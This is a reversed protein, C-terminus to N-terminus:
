CWKFDVLLYALLIGFMRGYQIGCTKVNLTPVLMHPGLTELAHIRFHMHCYDDSQLFTLHWYKSFTTTPIIPNLIGVNSHLAWHRDALCVDAFNPRAQTCCNFGETLFELCIPRFLM